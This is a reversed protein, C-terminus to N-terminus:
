PVLPPSPGRPLPCPGRLPPQSSPCPSWLGCWPLPRQPRHHSQHPHTPDVLKANQTRRPTWLGPLAPDRLPKTQPTRVSPTVGSPVTLQPTQLCHSQNDQVPHSCQVWPVSPVLSPWLVSCDAWGRHLVAAHRGRLRTQCPLMNPLLTRLPIVASSAWTPCGMALEILYAGMLAPGHGHGMPRATRPTITWLPVTHTAAARSTPTGLGCSLGAWPAHATTCVLYLPCWRVARSCVTVRRRALPGPGHCGGAVMWPVWLNLWLKEDKYVRREDAFLIVSMFYPYFCHSGFVTYERYIKNMVRRLVLECFLHYQTDKLPDINSWWFWKRSTM